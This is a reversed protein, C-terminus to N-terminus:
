SNSYPVRQVKRCHGWGACQQNELRTGLLVCWKPNRLLPRAFPTEGNKKEFHFPLFRFFDSGSFVAFVSSFPWFPFFFFVSSFLSFFVSLIPLSVTGAVGKAFGRVVRLALPVSILSGRNEVGQSIGNKGRSYPFVAKEFFFGEVFATKGKERPFFPM